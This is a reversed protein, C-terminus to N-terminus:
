QEALECLRNAGAFAVRYFCRSMGPVGSWCKEILRSDEALQMDSGSVSSRAIADFGSVRNGVSVRKATQILAIVARDNAAMIQEVTELSIKAVASLAIASIEWEEYPVGGSKQPIM